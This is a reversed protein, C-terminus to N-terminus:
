KRGESKRDSTLFQRMAERQKIYQRVKYQKYKEAALVSVIGIFVLLTGM